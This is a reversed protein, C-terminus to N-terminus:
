QPAPESPMLKNGIANVADTIKKAAEEAALKYFNVTSIALLGILNSAIFIALDAHKRESERNHLEFRGDEHQKMQQSIGWLTTHLFFTPMLYGYFCLTTLGENVESAQTPVPKKTWSGQLATKNCKKCVFETFDEEVEAFGSEIEDRRNNSV